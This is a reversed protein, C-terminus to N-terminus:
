DKKIKESIKRKKMERPAEGKIKNKAVQRGRWKM